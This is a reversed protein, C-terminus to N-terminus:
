KEIKQLINRLTTLDNESLNKFLKEFKTDNEQKFHEIKEICFDTLEVTYKKTKGNTQNKKILGKEELSSIARTVHAKDFQLESGLEKLTMPRKTKKLLSIFPFLFPSIGINNIDTIFFTHIKHKIRKIISLIEECTNIDSM